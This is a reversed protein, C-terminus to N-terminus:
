FLNEFHYKKPPARLWDSGLSTKLWNSLSRSKSFRGACNGTQIPILNAGQGYCPVCKKNLKDVLYKKPCAECTVGDESLITGFEETNCTCENIQDWESGVGEDPIWRGFPTWVTPNDPRKYLEHIGSRQMWCMTTSQFIIEHESSM